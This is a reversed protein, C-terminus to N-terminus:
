YVWRRVGMSRVLPLTAQMLVLISHVLLLGLMSGCHKTGPAAESADVGPHKSRDTFGVDFGTSRVLSLRAQMLVLISRVLLLGVM